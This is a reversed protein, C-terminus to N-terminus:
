VTAKGVDCKSCREKYVKGDTQKRNSRQDASVAAINQHKSVFLTDSIGCTMVIMNYNFETCVSPYLVSCLVMVYNLGSYNLVRYCHVVNHRGVSCELQKVPSRLCDSRTLVYLSRGEM